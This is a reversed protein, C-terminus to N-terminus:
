ITTGEPTPRKREATFITVVLTVVGIVVCIDAINFVPWHFTGRYLDLFDTVHGLRVRDILNGTAGAIILCLSSLAGRFAIYPRILFSLAALALLIISVILPVGWSSGQSFAMGTNIQYTISFVGPVVPVSTGLTPFHQIVLAKSLQDLATLIVIASVAWIKKQMKM